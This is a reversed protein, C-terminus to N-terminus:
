PSRVQPPQTPRSAGCPTLHINVQQDPYGAGRQVLLGRETVSTGGPNLVVAAFRWAENFWGELTPIPGPRSDFTTNWARRSKWNTTPCPAPNRGAERSKPCRM